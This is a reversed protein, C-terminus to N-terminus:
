WDAAAPHQNYLLETQHSKDSDSKINLREEPTETLEPDEQTLFLRTRSRSSGPCGFDQWQWQFQPSRGNVPCQCLVWPEELVPHTHKLKPDKLVWSIFSPNLKQKKHSSSKAADQILILNLAHTNRYVFVYSVHTCTLERTWLDLSVWDM